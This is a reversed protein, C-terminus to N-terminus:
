RMSLRYGFNRFPEEILRYTFESVILILFISLFIRSYFVNSLKLSLGLCFGHSLYFSFSRAGIYELLRNIMSFNLLDERNQIGIFLLATGVWPALAQQYAYLTWSQLFLNPIMFHLAILGFLCFNLIFRNSFIRMTKLSSFHAILLGFLLGEYRNHFFVQYNQFITEDTDMAILLLLRWFLLCGLIAVILTLRQASKKILIFFFPAIFYFQEELSLSWYFGLPNNHNNILDFNIYFFIAPMAQSITALNLVFYIFIWFLALPIIRFFRRIFFYRLFDFVFFEASCGKLMQTGIFFGSLVFFFDVGIGGSRLFTLKGLEAFTFYFHFAIVFVVSLGRLRELSLNKHTLSNSLNHRGVLKIFFNGILM